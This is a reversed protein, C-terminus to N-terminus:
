ECREGLDRISTVRFEPTANTTEVRERKTTDPAGDREVRTTTETKTEGGTILTGTVEVKKGVHEKVQVTGPVLAYTTSTETEGTRLDTTTTRTKPVVKNLIYTKAETGTEVCGTYTVTQAEGGSSRTKSKVTTEQAHATLATAALAITLASILRSM